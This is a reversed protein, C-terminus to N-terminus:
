LCLIGKYRYSIGSIYSHSIIRTADPNWAATVTYGIPKQMKNFHLLTHSMNMNLNQIILFLNHIFLNCYYILYLTSFSQMSLLVSCSSPDVLLIKFYLITYYEGSTFSCFTVYVSINIHLLAPAIRQLCISIRCFYSSCQSQLNDRQLLCLVVM